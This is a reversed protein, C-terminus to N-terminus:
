LTSFEEGWVGNKEYFENALATTEDIRRQVEPDRRRKEQEIARSLTKEVVDSVDGLLLEADRILDESLVLEVPKRPGHPVYTM